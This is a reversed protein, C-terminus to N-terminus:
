ALIRDVERRLYVAATELDMAAGRAELETLQDTDFAAAVTDQADQVLDDPAHATSPHVASMAHALGFIVAAPEYCGMGAFATALGLLEVLLPQGLQLHQEVGAAYARLAAHWDRRRLAIAGQSTMSSAAGARDGLSAAVDAAEQLSKLAREPDQETLALAQTLLAYLLTGAAGVKRAARVAQEAVVAARTPDDLLATALLILAHALEFPDNGDRALELWAEAHQRARKLDNQFFAVAGAAAHVWLHRTGLATQSAQATAVLEAARDFEGRFVAAMAAFAVAPPFLEHTSAGDISRAVDAWDTAMFGTPIGTVMLPIVLRLGKDPLRAEVAWDLGARFNDTELVLASAWTIQERSRLHPGAKEALGVYHTLHRGRLAAVEDSAELREQAYQRITELLRYRVGGAGPDVDLL